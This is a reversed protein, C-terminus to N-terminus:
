AIEMLFDDRQTFVICNTDAGDAISSGLIVADHKDACQHEFVKSRDRIATVIWHNSEDCHVIIKSINEYM